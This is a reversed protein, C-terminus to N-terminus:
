SISEQTNPHNIKIIRSSFIFRAVFPESLQAVSGPCFKSASHKVFGSCLIFSASTLIKDVRAFWFKVSTFTKCCLNGALKTKLHKYVRKCPKSGGLGGLAVGLRSGQTFIWTETTLSTTTFDQVWFLRRRRDDRLLPESSFKHWHRRWIVEM